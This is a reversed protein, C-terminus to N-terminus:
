DCIVVTSVKDSILPAALSKKRRYALIPTSSEDDLGDASESTHETSCVVCCRMLYLLYLSDQLFVLLNILRPSSSTFFIPM